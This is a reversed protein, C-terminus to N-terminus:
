LWPEESYDIAAQLQEHLRGDHVGPSGSAVFCIHKLWDNPTTGWLTGVYKGSKSEFLPSGSSGPAIANPGYTWEVKGALGNEEAVKTKVMKRAVNGQYDGYHWVTVEDGAQVTTTTNLNYPRIHPYRKRFLDEDFAVFSWDQANAGSGMVWGESEGTFFFKHPQLPVGEYFKTPLIWGSRPDRTDEFDVHIHFTSEWPNARWGECPVVHHNTLVGVRTVGKKDTYSAILGSGTALSGPEVPSGGFLLISFMGFVMRAAGMAPVAWSAPNYWEPLGDAAVTILVVQDAKGRETPEPWEVDAHLCLVLSIILLSLPRNIM